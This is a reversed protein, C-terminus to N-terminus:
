VRVEGVVTLRSGGFALITSQCKTVDNMQVDTTARKYMKLPLVNCQAGSDIQFRIYNGSDLKLTVWQSDDLLTAGERVPFVEDPERIARVSNRTSGSRKQRCKNAFHNLKGCLDCSKGFAPCLEKPQRGHQRGCNWCEKATESKTSRSAEKTMRKKQGSFKRVAHVSTTADNWQGVIRMQETMSEAARCIEDTKILTQNNERLLRERVKTDHIGFILRDRLIENPTITDFECAESLKRLTTKYQEYSEGSEQTRKNFKYREFPVNKRPQCYEAFKRLVPLIRRDDGDQAWDRFTSYVERGDEGIVTLLTAVQVPQPKGGLEILVLLLPM